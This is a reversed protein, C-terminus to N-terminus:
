ISFAQKMVRRLVAAKIPKHIIILGSEQAEKLREPATDGTIIVAPIAYEQQQRIQKILEIGTENNQLRFDSLVLNPKFVGLALFELCNKSSSFSQVNCNWGSLLTELGIRVQEDDEIIVVKENNFVVFNSSQTTNRVIEKSQGLPVAISFQSGKDIASTVSIPWNQLDCLRKVISLGLGLGKKQNREPNNLQHFETFIAVQEDEPIGTGTDSVEITAHGGEMRSTLTITGCHTYCIANNLLNGIVREFLVPDVFIPLPTIKTKLILNKETALIEYEALLKGLLFNLDIHQPKPQVTDADLKSVDLLSNLLESMSDVSSELRQILSEAANLQISPSIKDKLASLFLHIAQLPQRLDHSAAALFKSKAMNAIEAEKRSEDVELRLRISDIITHHLRWGYGLVTLWFFPVFLVLLMGIDLTLLKIFLSLLPLTMFAFYGLPYQVMAPAPTIALAIIIVLLAAIYQSDDTMLLVHPPLTWVCGWLLSVCFIVIEWHKLSLKNPLFYYICYFTVTSILLLVQAAIWTVRGSFNTFDYFVVYLLIGTILGGVLHPLAEKMFERHREADIM